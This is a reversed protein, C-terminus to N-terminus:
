SIPQRDKPAQSAAEWSHLLLLLLARNPGM